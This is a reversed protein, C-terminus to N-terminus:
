NQPEELAPAAETEHHHHFLKGIGRGTGKATKGTRTFLSWIPQVKELVRQRRELAKPPEKASTEPAAVSTVVPAANTPSCVPPLSHHAPLNRRRNPRATRAPLTKAASPLHSRSSRSPSNPSHPECPNSRRSNLNLRPPLPKRQALILALGLATLTLTLTYLYRQSILHSVTLHMRISNGLDCHLVGNWYHLYQTCHPLDLAYQHRLAAIDAPTAVEGLM